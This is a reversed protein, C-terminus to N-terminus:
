PRVSVPHPLIRAQGSPTVNQGTKSSYRIDDLLKHLIVADDFSPASHTGNHLDSALRQYIEKVNISPDISHNTGPVAIIEPDQHFPSYKTITFNALQTHGTQGTIVVEGTTGEIQWVFADGYIPQGGRYDITLPAGNTLRAIISIYDPADADIYNGTDLAKVRPYRTHVLGSLQSMNGLVDISAALCHAFPITLLDAGSYDKRLYEENKTNSITAGWPTAWARISSSLISGIADGEILEAIKRIAPSVRAQMGTVAMVSQERAMAALHEAERLTRGLPWECYIPKKHALITKVADYHLAVRVTVVVLDIEDSSAMEDISGFARPIHCAEAAARSSELSSNVVGM